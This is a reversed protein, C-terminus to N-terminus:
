RQLISKYDYMIVNDAIKAKKGILYVAYQRVNMSYKDKM